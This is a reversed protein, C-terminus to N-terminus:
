AVFFSRAQFEDQQIAQQLEAVNEFKKNARIFKLLEVTIEQGVLEVHVDLIHTEAREELDEFTTPVGIFTLSPLWKEQWRTQSIYVGHPIKKTLKVNATPYGLQKGRGLNAYVVGSFSELVTFEPNNKSKM